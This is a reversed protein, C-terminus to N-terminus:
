RQQGAVAKAKAKEVLPKLQGNDALAKLFNFIFPIYAHKRRVNEAAWGASQERAAVLRASLGATEEECLALAAAIEAEDGGAGRAAALEAQRAQVKALEELALEERNRIVAMLNFRIESAAYREIREQIAPAAAALWSDESCAGLNIPGEKLGDLEWLCGAAPM